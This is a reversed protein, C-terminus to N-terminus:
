TNLYGNIANQFEELSRIVHHKYGCRLLHAQWATQHTTLYGRPSKLELFLGHFGASPLALFLDPFGPSTGMQKFRAAERANRKGGNPSHHLFPSLQPHAYRFWHLCRIQLEDEPHTPRSRTTTAFHDRLQDLNM